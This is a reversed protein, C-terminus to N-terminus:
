DQQPPKVPEKRDGKPETKTDPKEVPPDAHIPSEPRQTM